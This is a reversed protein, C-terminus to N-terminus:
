PSTEAADRARITLNRVEGSQGLSPLSRGNLTLSVAGADGVTLRVSEAAQVGRSQNARMTGQWQRVGDATISLWVTGHSDIQLDLDEPLLSVPAAAPENGSAPGDLPPTGSILADSGAGPGPGIGAGPGSGVPASVASGIVAGSLDGGDFSSPPENDALPEGLVAAPPGAAPVAAPASTRDEASAPGATLYGYLRYGGYAIGAILIGIGLIALVVRSYETKTSFSPLEPARSRAASATEKRAGFAQLYEQVAVDEDVELIRAYQRVFSRNIVGGPLKEFQENEIARLLGIGIKTKEAIEELTIGRAERERRLTTGLSGVHEARCESPYEPLTDTKHYSGFVPSDFM